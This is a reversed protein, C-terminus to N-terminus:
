TWGPRTPGSAPSCDKCAATTSDGDAVVNDAVDRCPTAPRQRRPGRRRDQLRGGHGPGGGAAGRLHERDGRPVEQQLGDQLAAAIADGSLEPETRDDFDDLMLYMAGFNSANANLLISQGAIAVTHKVGPTKLAIEEIQQM